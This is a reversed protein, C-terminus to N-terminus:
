KIHLTIFTYDLLDAVVQEESNVIDVQMEQMTLKSPNHLKM